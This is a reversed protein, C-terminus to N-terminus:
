ATKRKSAPELKDLKELIAKEIFDGIQPKIGYKSEFTNIMKEFVTKQIKVSHTESNAAM